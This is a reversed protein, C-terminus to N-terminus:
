FVSFDNVVRGAASTRAVVDVEDLYYTIGSSMYWFSLRNLEASNAVTFSHTYQQWQQTLTQNVGQYSGDVESQFVVKLTALNFRM